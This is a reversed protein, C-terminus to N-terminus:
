LYEPNHYISIYSHQHTPMHIDVNLSIGIVLANKGDKESFRTIISKDKHKEGTLYQM